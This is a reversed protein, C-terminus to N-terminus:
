GSETWITTDWEDWTLGLSDVQDWTLGAADFDDWTQLPTVNDPDPDPQALWSLAWEVEGVDWQSGLDSSEDTVYVIQSPVVPCGAVRCATRDHFVVMLTNEDLLARLRDTHDGVTAGSMSGGGAGAVPDLRLPAFRSGAVSSAHFRRVGSRADGGTRRLGVVTGADLSAVVDRALGDGGTGTYPRVIVGSAVVSGDVRLTYTLSENVPAVADTLVVQEGSGAGSGGRPRWTFSGAAGTIDWSSASALLAGNIVIRVPPLTGAGVSLTLGSSDGLVVPM